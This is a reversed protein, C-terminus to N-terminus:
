IVVEESVLLNNEENGEPILNDKDVKVTVTHTAGTPVNQYSARVTSFAASQMPGLQLVQSSLGSITIEVETPTTTAEGNNEITIDIYINATNSNVWDYSVSFITPVYDTQPPSQGLTEYNIIYGSAPASILTPQGQQEDTGQQGQGNGTTTGSGDGGQGQQQGQQGGGTTSAGEDASGKKGSRFGVIVSVAILVVLFIAVLSIWLVADGRKRM